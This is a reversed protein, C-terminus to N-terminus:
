SGASEQRARRRARAREISPLTLPPVYKPQPGRDTIWQAPPAMVLKALQQLVSDYNVRWGAFDLWARDRDAKVPLGALELDTLVSNFEARTISIPDGPQPRADYQMDFYDAIRRLALFGTRIMLDVRADRPIDLVSARLAATDLVLGAANIWSREPHPSRFFVLAPQSTHSVEVYVFWPEWRVFLDDEIWELRGISAYRAFLTGASAPSGARVELMGVLAERRAFAGYITPLYSIMLAVVGLGIAAELFSLATVWDHGPRSFGLTTASSGSLVFSESLGEEHIAWYIGAFGTIILTLWLAPLLVLGIPAYWAMIRDREEFPRTPRALLRFVQLLMVFHFRTLWAKEARPLVVTRIASLLTRVVVIAGIVGVVIHVAIVVANHM